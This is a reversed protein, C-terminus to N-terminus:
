RRTISSTAPAGSDRREPTSIFFPSAAIWSSSVTANKSSALLSHRRPLVSSVGRWGPPRAMEPLRMRTPPSRQWYLPTIAARCDALAHTDGTEAGLDTEERLCHSAQDGPANHVNSLKYFDFSPEGQSDPWRTGIILSLAYINADYAGADFQLGARLSADAASLAPPTRVYGVQRLAAASIREHCDHHIPDAVQWAWAASPALLVATAGLVGGLGLVVRLIIPAKGDGM